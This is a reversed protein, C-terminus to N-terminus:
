WSITHSNDGYFVLFPCLILFFLFFQIHSYRAVFAHVIFPVHTGGCPRFEALVIGVEHQVQVQV